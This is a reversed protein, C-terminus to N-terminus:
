QQMRSPSLLAPGLLLLLFRWPLATPAAPPVGLALLGNASLTLALPWWWDQVLTQITASAVRLVDMTDKLSPM